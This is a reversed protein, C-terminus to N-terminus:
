DAARHRRGKARGGSDGHQAAVSEAASSEASETLAAAFEPPSSLGWNDAEPDILQQQLETYIPTSDM